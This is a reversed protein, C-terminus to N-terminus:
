VEVKVVRVIWFIGAVLMTAGVLLMVIGLPDTFLPAMYERRTVFMFLGLVLPLAILVYASLRGEASLSRVHRRLRGRERMTEVATQLVEALNGGVERQIRIAMLAWTLDRNGTRSAVRELADALDGGLRYETLARGFEQSLPQPSERVLSDLAQPLSFGSRLSGVVLQLGEPLQEAFADSRRSIRISQYLMPVLLGLVIGLLAGVASALFVGLVAGGIVSLGRVLVWEHPRLGMGARELKLAIGAENGRVRVLEQAAKLATRSLANGEQDQTPAAAPLTRAPGFQAIQKIREHRRSRPWILAVVLLTLAAFVTVGAILAAWRPPAPITLQEVVVPLSLDM